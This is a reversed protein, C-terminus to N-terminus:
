RAGAKMIEALRALPRQDWAASLQTAFHGGGGIFLNDRPIKWREALRRGMAYPLINDGEGLVMVIREPPLPATEGMATLPRWRDVDPATWGAAEVAHPLGTRTALASEYALDAIEDAATLLALADPRLREPWHVSHTAALAAALAGMSAGALAVAGTSTRRSWDVIVALERAQATFLDVPGLPATAFFREGGYTGPPRRRGHWPLEFEVIRFGRRVLLQVNGAFRGYHDFEIFIGNGFILTPPDAVGRPEHVRAWATDNLRASPSPFRLWYDVGAIGGFFGPFRRSKTVPPLSKPPRYLRWVDRMAPDYIKEAEGRGAIAFKVPPVARGFRMAAFRMRQANLWLASRSRRREILALRSAGFDAGGFFAHEWEEVSDDYRRKRDRVLRLARGVGFAPKAKLPVEAIFRDIDGEAVMAAAWLRSVPLWWELVGWLAPRDFLWNALGWGLPGALRSGRQTRAPSKGARKTLRITM